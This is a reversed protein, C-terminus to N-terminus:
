KHYKKNQLITTARYIQELLIMKAMEHTYTMSSLSLLQNSKKKSEPTLGEPGGIIFTLKQHKNKLFIRSFEVSSLKKGEESLAIKFSSDKQLYNVIKQNETKNDSAKIIIEEVDCFFSIRHKFDNCMISINKNKLKGVSLIVIKM